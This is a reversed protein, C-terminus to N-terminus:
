RTRHAERGSEVFARQHDLRQRMEAKAVEDDAGYRLKRPTAIRARPHEPVDGVLRQEVAEAEGVGADVRHHLRKRLETVDPSREEAAPGGERAGLQHLQGLADLRM